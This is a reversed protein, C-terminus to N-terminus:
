NQEARIEDALKQMLVSTPVGTQNAMACSKPKLVLIGVVLAVVLGLVVVMKKM